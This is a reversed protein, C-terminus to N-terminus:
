AVLLSGSDQVSAGQYAGMGVDFNADGKKVWPEMKAYLFSQCSKVYIERMEMTVEISEGAWDLARNFLGLSIAPYFSM